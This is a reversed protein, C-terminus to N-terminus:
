ASDPAESACGGGGPAPRRAPRIHDSLDLKWTARTGLIECKWFISSVCFHFYPPESRSESVVWQARDGRRESYPGFRPVRARRAGFRRTVVRDRM